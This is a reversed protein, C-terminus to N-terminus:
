KGGGQPHSTTSTARERAPTFTGALIQMIQNKGRQIGLNKLFQWTPCPHKGAQGAVVKREREDGLQKIWAAEEATILMGRCKKLKRRKGGSFNPM